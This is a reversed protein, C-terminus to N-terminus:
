GDSAAPECVDDLCVRVRGGHWVATVLWAPMGPVPRGHHAQWAYAEIPEGAALLETFQEAAEIAALKAAQEREVAAARWDDLLASCRPNNVIYKIKADMECQERLLRVYSGAPLRYGDRGVAAARDATGRRNAM